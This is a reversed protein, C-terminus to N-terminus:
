KLTYKTSKKKATSKPGPKNATVKESGEAGVDPRLTVGLMGLLQQMRGQQEDPYQTKAPEGTDYRTLTEGEIMNQLQRTQPLKQAAYLLLEEPHRLLPGAPAGFNEQTRPTRVNELGRGLTKGFGVALGLDALPNVARTFGTVSQPEGTEGFGLQSPRMFVSSSFPNLASLNLRQGGVDATNLNFGEAGPDPNFEQGLAALHLTWAVRAPDELPLRFALKTIHKQWTYFPFIRRMINKEFPTLRGFDGAAKLAMQIAAQTSVGEGKKALYIMTRNVDDVYQNMAYSTQIPHKLKGGLTDPTGKVLAALSEESFHFGSALLEAPAEGTKVMQRALRGYKVMDIPSLGAAAAMSLNGVINGFHWRPSLALVTHKWKGTATDWVYGFKGADKGYRNLDAYRKVAAHVDKPLVPSNPRIAKEKLIEGTQPDWAVYGRSDLEATWDVKGGPTIADPVITSVDLGPAFNEQVAANFGAQLARVNEKNFKQVEDFSPGDARDPTIDVDDVAAAVPQRPGEVLRQKGAALDDMLKREATTLLTDPAEEPVMSMKRMANLRDVEKKAATVAKNASEFGADGDPLASRAQKAATLKATAADIDVQWEAPTKSRIEGLVGPARAAPEGRPIKPAVAQSMAAIDENLADFLPAADPYRSTLNARITDPAEGREILRFLSEQSPATVNRHYLDAMDLQRKTSRVLAEGGRVLPDTVKSTARKLLGPEKVEPVGEDLRANLEDLSISTGKETGGLMKSAGKGLLQYPKAPLNGIEAGLRGVEQAKETIKAGLGTNTTRLKSAEGAMNAARQLDLAEQVSGRGAAKTAAEALTSEDAVKGLKAARSTAGAARELNAAKALGGAGAAKGLLGVGGALLSVDSVTALGTGLVGEEKVRKGLRTQGFGEKAGKYALDYPDLSAATKVPSSLLAYTMPAKEKYEKLSVKGTAIKPFETALGTGLRYLGAPFGTVLDEVQTLPNHKDTTIGLDPLDPLDVGGVKPLNPLRVGLFGKKPEDKKKDSKKSSTKKSEGGLNYKAM